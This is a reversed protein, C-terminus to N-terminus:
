IQNTAVYSAPLISSWFALSFSDYHRKIVYSKTSIGMGIFSIGIFMFLFFLAVNTLSMGFILLIYLISIVINTRLINMPLERDFIDTNYVKAFLLLTLIAVSLAFIMNM